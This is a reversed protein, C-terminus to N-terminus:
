QDEFLEAFFEVAEAPVALDEAQYCSGGPDVWEGLSCDAAWVEDGNSDEAWVMISPIPFIIGLYGGSYHEAFKFLKADTYGGRADCGNHLQLLVYYEGPDAEFQVPKYLLDQSLLNGSNYTNCPAEIEAGKSQLWQGAEASIGYLHDWDEM